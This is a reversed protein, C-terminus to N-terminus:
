DILGEERLLQLGLLRPIGNREMNSLLRATGPGLQLLLGNDMLRQIAQTRTHNHLMLGKVIKELDPSLELKRLHQTREEFAEETM